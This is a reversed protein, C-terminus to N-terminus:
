LPDERSEVFWCHSEAVSWTAVWSGTGPGEHKAKHGPPKHPRVISPDIFVTMGPARANRGQAAAHVAFSGSENAIDQAFSTAFVRFTPPLDPALLVVGFSDTGNQPDM